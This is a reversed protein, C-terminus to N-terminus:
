RQEEFSNHMNLLRWNGESRRCIAMGKAAMSRDPLTITLDYGFWVADGVFRSDRVELEFRAPPDLDFYRHQLYDIVAEKGRVENSATFLAVQSDLCNAVADRDGHNFATLCTEHNELLETQKLEENEAGMLAVRKKLDLTAGFEELLEVGLIGDIRGGCAEAIPSLDIAPLRLNRIRQSGLVLEPLFVQRASTLSTGTWSTVQIATM